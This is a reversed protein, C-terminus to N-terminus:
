GFYDAVQFFASLISLGIAIVTLGIMLRESRANEERTIRFIRDHERRNLEYILLNVLREAPGQGITQPGFQNVIGYALEVKRTSLRRMVDFTTDKGLAKILLEKDGHQLDREDFRDILLIIAEEEM